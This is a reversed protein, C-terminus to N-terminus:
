SLATVPQTSSPQYKIGPLLQLIFSGGSNFTTDPKHTYLAKRKNQFLFSSLQLTWLAENGTSKWGTHKPCLYQLFTLQSPWRRCCHWMLWWYGVVPPVCMHRSITWPIRIWTWHWINSRPIPSPGRPNSCRTVLCIKSYIFTQNVRQTQHLRCYHGIFAADTLTM